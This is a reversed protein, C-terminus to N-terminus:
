RPAQCQITQIERRSQDLTSVDNILMRQTAVDYEYALFTGGEASGALLVDISHDRLHITSFRGHMLHYHGGFMACIHTHPSRALVEVLTPNDDPIHQNLVVVKGADYAQQLVTELWVAGSYLGVSPIEHGFQMQLQIELIPGYDKAYSLSKEDSSFIGESSKIFGRMNDVADQSCWTGKSTMFSWTMPGWCSGPDPNDENNNWVDHNGLGIDVNLRQNKQLTRFDKFFRTSQDTHFYATLDGNVTVAHPKEGRSDVYSELAEMMKQNSGPYGKWYYQPDASKIISVRDSFAELHLDHNGLALTDGRTVGSIYKPGGV